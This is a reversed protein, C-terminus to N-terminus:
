VDDMQPEKLLICNTMKILISHCIVKLSSYCEESNYLCWYKKLSLVIKSGPSRPLLEM